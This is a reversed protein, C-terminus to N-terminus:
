EAHKDPQDQIWPRRKPKRRPAREPILRLAVAAEAPLLWREQTVLPAAGPGGYRPSESTWLTEWECGLPPALLPEPAPTLVQRKGFNVILLRDGKEDAFYRLVFSAPGLVAGDIEGPKQERFRSDEHRLKILDVHLDYLDRNAARQSFDLKCNAFLQPDSPSPLNRQMEENAMSPFQALFEFRGKRIAERMDSDGVDTFFVFPSSSGFEQGQFLMPTWPGLLLLATMARYRGPSTRFRLREGRPNNSIQDHNEIFAVFVEPPIGFSPTGRQSAQWSYPQGQYLYGYKAASIFEQPSGSYDTCYAENRGTLAVFASHHFDDNWLGDLDHGGESRPRVM